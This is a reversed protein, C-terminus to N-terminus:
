VYYVYYYITYIYLISGYSSRICVAATGERPTGYVTATHLIKGHEGQNVM